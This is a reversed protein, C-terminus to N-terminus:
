NGRCAALEELLKKENTLAKQLQEEAIRKISLSEENAREAELKQIVSFILFAFALFALFIIALTSALKGKKRKALLDSYMKQYDSDILQSNTEM